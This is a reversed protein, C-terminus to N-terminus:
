PNTIFGQNSLYDVSMQMNKFAQEKNDVAQLEIAVYPVKHSSMVQFVETFSLPNEMLTTQAQGAQASKLHIYFLNDAHAELFKLVSDAPPHVRSVSFPNATDFQWGVYANTRDFLDAIGFYATDEGFFAESANEIVYQLNNEKAINAARDAYLVLQNLEDETWGQKDPDATFEAFSGLSRFTGPGQFVAANKVGKNFTPWFDDDLIGKQIAYSVEIEKQRAYDSLEQAEELSLDAEPDRLEIWAYGENAAYDILTKTNEVNVPMVQLFNQTTFGLKLNQLETFQMKQDTESIEETSRSGSQCAFVSLVLSLSIANILYLKNHKAQYNMPQKM